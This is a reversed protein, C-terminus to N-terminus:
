GPPRLERFPPMLPHFAWLDVRGASGPGFHDEVLEMFGAMNVGGGGFTATYRAFFAKLAADGHRDRLDAFILGGRLYVSANFLDDPRPDAPPPFAATARTIAEEASLGQDVLDLGSITRYAREVAADYADTGEHQELWLWQAFTAIGENLWIDKWQELTIWNGFWQHSIEHAVIEHGARLSFSTYTAVEVTELAGPLDDEVVLAGVVEFPYPGFWSEFFRTIEPQLEFMALRPDGDLDSDFWTVYTRGDVMEVRQLFIGIALPLHYPAVDRIRYRWLRSGDVLSSTTLSGTSVVQLPAPIEVQLNFDARDAPHDNVPVWGSAGDPQSFAYWSDSGQQWGPAFPAPGQPVPAPRGAWSVFVTFRTGAPIFSEPEIILERGSRHYSLEVDPIGEGGLVNSIEHGVFDLNFRALDILARARIRVWGNVFLDTGGRADPLVSLRVHYSEVDYGGNGLDPLLDDIGSSGPQPALATTTTAMTPESPPPILSTTPPASEPVCATLILTLALGVRKM